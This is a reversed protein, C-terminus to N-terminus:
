MQWQKSPTVELYKCIGNDLTYMLQVTQEEQVTHIDGFKLM